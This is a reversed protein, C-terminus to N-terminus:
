RVGPKVGVAADIQNSIQPRPDPYFSRHFFEIKKVFKRIVM